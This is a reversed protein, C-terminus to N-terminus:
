DAGFGRLTRYATPTHGSHRRFLKSFSTPDQFGVAYCISEVTAEDLALLRAAEGMRLKTLYQHPTCGFVKRFERLFYYPNLCAISALKELTVDEQFCAHLFDKALLLRRYLEVRSAAKVKGTALAERDSEGQLAVMQMYLSFFLEQIRGHHTSLDRALARITMLVPTVSERHYYLRETFRIRSEAGAEDISGNRSLRLARNAEREFAPTMNLTMSEVESSSEIWSEYYKGENFILLSSDDVCYLADGSKYLEHGNFACKISLPGWHKDYFISKARADIIVNADHFRRNYENADFGPHTVDPFANMYGISGHRQCYNM